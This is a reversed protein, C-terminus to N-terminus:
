DLQMISVAGTISSEYAGHVELMEEHDLELSSALSPAGAIPISAGVLLEYREAANQRVLERASEIIQKARPEFDEKTEFLTSSDSGRAIEMTDSAVYKFLKECLDDSSLCSVDNVTTIDMNVLALAMISTIHDIKM